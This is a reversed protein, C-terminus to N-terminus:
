MKQQPFGIKPNWDSDQKPVIKFLNNQNTYWVVGKRSGTSIYSLIINKKSLEALEELTVDKEELHLNNTRPDAHIEDRISERTLPLVTAFNLRNVVIYSSTLFQKGNINDINALSLFQIDADSNDRIQNLTTTINNGTDGILLIGNPSLKDVSTNLLAETATIGDSSATNINVRVFNEIILQAKGPPLQQLIELADGHLSEIRSAIHAPLKIGAQNFQGGDKNLRDLSGLSKLKRFGSERESHDLLALNIKGPTTSIGAVQRWTVIEGSRARELLDIIKSDIDIAHTTFGEGLACTTIPELMGSGLIYVDTINEGNKTLSELLTSTVADSRGIFTRTSPKTPFLLNEVKNREFLNNYRTKIKEIYNLM